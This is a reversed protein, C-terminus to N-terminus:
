DSILIGVSDSSAGSQMVSSVRLVDAGRVREPIHLTLTEGRIRTLPYLAVAPALPDDNVDIAVRM